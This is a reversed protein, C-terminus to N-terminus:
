RLVVTLPEGKENFFEIRGRTSANGKNLVFLQTAIHPGDVFRPFVLPAATETTISPIESTITENRVNVTTQQATVSIPADSVVRLSGKFRGKDLLEVQSFEVQMNPGLIQYTRNVIRGEPDHLILRVDAADTGSNSLTVRFDIRGHRVVTPYTDIPFWAENTSGSGTSHESLLLAGKQNSIIVGGVPTGSSVTAVAFGTEATDGSPPSEWVFTGRAPISYSVDGRTAQYKMPDGQPLLFRLLGRVPQDMPNLLVIQTRFGGGMQIRPFTLTGSAAPPPGYVAPVSTLIEEGRENKTSRFAALHFSGNARVTVAGTVIRPFLERLNLSVSNSPPIDRTVADRVISGREDRLTFTLRIGTSATNAVHLLTERGGRGDVFVTADSVASRAPAAAESVLIRSERQSNGDFYTRMVTLLAAGGGTAKAASVVAYGSQVAKETDAGASQYNQVSAAPSEFEYVPRAMDHIMINSAFGQSVYLRNHDSDFALGRPDWMENARVPGLRRTEFDPQGIVALAEPMNRFREPHMDYIMVRDNGHDSVFLRDTKSDYTLGDPGDIGSRTRLPNATTFDPQGIVGVAAGGNRLASRETNFVLIRNNLGDSVFLRQHQADYFLAGPQNLGSANLTKTGSTFNPQGIVVSAPMGTRLQDPAADYVLVRNNGGDSVFLRDNAPDYTLGTGRPLGPTIGTGVRTDFDIGTQTRAPSTTEFDPQGLAAIARPGNNLRDPDADFVMVRNGWGDSVFARKHKTDYAVALPIKLTTDDVPRLESSYLDPQGLVWRADRDLLRNQWDLQWVLLRNNYQDIAFLRHDVPDLAVDRPYLNRGTARDNASRRTFDPNHNDDLHGVVETAAMGTRLRDPSVNWIMARNGGPYGETTVLLQRDPDIAGSGLRPWVTQERSVVPDYAGFGPKGIVAVPKTMKLEQGPAVEYVTVRMHEIRPVQEAIFLRDTREDYTLGGTAFGDLDQRRANTNFDRQGLVDIAPSANRLVGPRADFLLVRSNGNDSVFLRKNKADYDLSGPRTFKNPGLGPTGSVFDTQGLVISASMGTKLSSPQIDFVLVRNNTGDSVFLRSGESDVAVSPGRGVHNAALGSKKTTADPQGLVAIVAEGTEIRDPHIDFVMIQSGGDDFGQGTQNDVVFLRQNVHDIAV